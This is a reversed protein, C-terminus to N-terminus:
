ETVTKYIAKVFAVILVLIVGVVVIWYILDAVDM